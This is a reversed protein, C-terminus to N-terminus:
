IPRQLDARVWSMSHRSQGHRFAIAAAEDGVEDFSRPSQRRQCSPAAASFIGGRLLPRIGRTTRVTRTSGRDLTSEVWIRGPQRHAAYSEVLMIPFPAFFQRLAEATVGPLEEAFFHGADLAHGSVEDAWSRWLELPGGEGVYWTDVHGLASWLVLV